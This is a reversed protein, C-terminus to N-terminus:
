LFQVCSDLGFLPDSDLRSKVIASLRKEDRANRMLAASAVCSLPMVDVITNTCGKM